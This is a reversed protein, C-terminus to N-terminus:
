AENDIDEIFQRIQSSEWHGLDIKRINIKHYDKHSRKSNDRHHVLHDMKRVLAKLQRSSFLGIEAGNIFLKQEKIETKINM